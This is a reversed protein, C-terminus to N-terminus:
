TMRKPGAFVCVDRYAALNATSTSTNRTCVRSAAIARVCDATWRYHVRCKGCLDGYLSWVCWTSGGAGEGLVGVHVEEGVEKVYWKRWVVELGAMSKRGDLEAEDTRM